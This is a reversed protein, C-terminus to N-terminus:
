EGGAAGGFEQRLLARLRDHVDLPLEESCSRRVKEKLGHEFAYGHDCSSCRHLHWRIRMRRVWTIEGDLYLYLQQHAKQCYRSM